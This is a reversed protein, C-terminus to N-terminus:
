KLGYKNAKIILESLKNVELKQFINKRHSKVTEASIFLKTGIETSSYGKVLLRIVEMERSTVATMKIFHDAKIHNVKIKDAIEPSLYFPYKDLHFIVEALTQLSTDKTLYANAGLSQCKKAIAIESYMSLIAVKLNPDYLRIEKLIELGNKGPLNLDLFVIDVKIKELTRTIDKGDYLVEAIEVNKLGQLLQILGSVFLKQDDIILIRKPPNISM